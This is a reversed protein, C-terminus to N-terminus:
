RVMAGHTSSEIGSGTRLACTRGPRDAPRFKGAKDVEAEGVVKDSLVEADFKPFHGSKPGIQTQDVAM